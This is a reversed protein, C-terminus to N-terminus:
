PAWFIEVSVRARGLVTAIPLDGATGAMVQDIIVRKTQGTVHLVLRRTDILAALTLSIRQRPEAPALGAVCHSRSSPDLAAALGPMNPFLSATHGDDGMGLVVLDFPRPMATMANHATPVGHDPSPHDTKLPVFRADRAHGTILRRRVFAENSAPHDADVWREDALTIATQAWPLARQALRDFLPEPTRGGSVVLGAQGRTEVASSITGAISEALSHALTAADAAEHLSFAM